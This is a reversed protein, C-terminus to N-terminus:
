NVLTDSGHRIPQLLMPLLKLLSGFAELLRDSIALGDDGTLSSRVRNGAPQAKLPGDVIDKETM